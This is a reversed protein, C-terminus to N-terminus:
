RGTTCPDHDETGEQVITMTVLLGGEKGLKLGVGSNDGYRLQLRRHINWLAHDDGEDQVLKKREWEALFDADPGSGNDEIEITLKTTDCRVRIEVWGDEVTQEHGHMVANEMFPQILLRPVEWQWTPGETEFRFSLREQFRLQQISAYVRAHQVEKELAVLDAKNQTIFKFYEGLHRSMASVSEYNEEQAMRYLIFLSNYLFHPNIQSQLQKLESHQSRIKQEYVQKVLIDLKEVTVNFQHYLYHFEDRKRHQLHVDFQGTEIHRFAKLLKLIPRHIVKLLSLSVVFVFVISLASFFWLWKKFPLIPQLVKSEDALMTLSWAVSHFEQVFRLYSKGQIHLIPADEARSFSDLMQAEDSSAPDLSSLLFSSHNSNSSIVVIGDGVTNPNQIEDKIKGLSIEIILLFESNSLQPFGLTFLLRGNMYSLGSASVNTQGAFLAYEAPDMESYGTLSSLKHNNNPMLVFADQIYRSSSALTKIKSLLDNISKTREYPKLTELRGSLDHLDSDGLFELQLRSIRDFESDMSSVFYASKQEMLHMIQERMIDIGSKNMMFAIIYIPILIALFTTWLKPFIGYHRPFPRLSM